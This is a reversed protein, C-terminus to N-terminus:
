SVIDFKFITFTNCDIHFPKELIPEATDLNTPDINPFRAFANVSVSKLLTKSKKLEAAIPPIKTNIPFNIFLM